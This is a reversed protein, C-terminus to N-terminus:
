RVTFIFTHMYYHAVPKCTKLFKQKLFYGRVQIVIFQQYLKWPSEAMWTIKAMWNGTSKIQLEQKQCRLSTERYWQSIFHVLLSFANFFINKNCFLDCNLTCRRNFDSANMQLFQSIETHIPTKHSPRGKSPFYKVQLLKDSYKLIVNYWM